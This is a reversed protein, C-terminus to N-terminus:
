CEHFRQGEKSRAVYVDLGTGEGVDQLYFTWCKQILLSAHLENLLMVKNMENDTFRKQDDYHLKNFAPLDSIHPMNIWHDQYRHNPDQLIHEQLYTL